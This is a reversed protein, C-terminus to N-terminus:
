EKIHILEFESFYYPKQHGPFKVGFAPGNDIVIGELSKIDEPLCFINVESRVRVKDGNKLM